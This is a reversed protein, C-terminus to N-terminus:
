WFAMQCPKTSVAAAIWKAATQPTTSAPYSCRWRATKAWTRSRVQAGRHTIFMCIGIKNMLEWIREVPEPM